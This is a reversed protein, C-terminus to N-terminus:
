DYYYRRQEELRREQELQEETKKKLPYFTLIQKDNKRIAMICKIRGSGLNIFGVYTMNQDPHKNYIQIDLCNQYFEKMGYILDTGSVEDDFLTVNSKEDFNVFYNETHRALIHRFGYGEATGVSLTVQGYTENKFTQMTENASVNANLVYEGYDYFADQVKHLIEDQYVYIPHAGILVTMLLVKKM